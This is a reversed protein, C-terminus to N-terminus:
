RNWPAVFELSVGDGFRGPMYHLRVSSVILVVAGVILLWSKWGM